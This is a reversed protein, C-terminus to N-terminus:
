MRMCLLGWVGPSWPGLGPASGGARLEAPWAALNRLSIIQPGHTVQGLGWPGWSLFSPILSELHHRIDLQAEEHWCDRWAVCVRRRWLGLLWAKQGQGAVRACHSGALLCSLLAWRPRLEAQLDRRSEEKEHGTDLVRTYASVWPAAPSSATQVLLTHTDTPTGLREM